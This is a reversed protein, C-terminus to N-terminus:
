VDQKSSASVSFLEQRRQKSHADPFCPTAHRQLRACSRIHSQPRTHRSRATNLAPDPREVRSASEGARRSAPNPESFRYCFSTIEPFHRGGEARSFKQGGCAVSEPSFPSFCANEKLNQVGSITVRISFRGSLLVYCTRVTCLKGQMGWRTVLCESM